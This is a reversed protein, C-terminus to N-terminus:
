SLLNLYENFIINLFPWKFDKSIMTRSSCYIILTPDSVPDISKKFTTDPDPVRQLTLDPDPDTVFLKPNV